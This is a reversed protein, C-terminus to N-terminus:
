WIDEYTHAPDTTNNADPMYCRRDATDDLGVRCHMRLRGARAVYKHMNLPRSM